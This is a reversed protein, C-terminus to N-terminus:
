KTEEVVEDGSAEGDEMVIGVNGSADVREIWVQFGHKEAAAAILAFSDDDLLSGDAIRLVRLKPNSAMALAMSVQIQEANSAQGFPLGNYLVEDDGIGLGEIPMQARALADELDQTRGKVIADLREWEANAESVVDETLRYNSAAAIKTNTANAATLEAALQATDIEDPIEMMNSDTLKAEATAINSEMEQELQAIRAELRRIEAEHEKNRELLAVSEERLRAQAAKTAAVVSNHNSAGELKKTITEVDIPKAPLGEEPPTMAALRGKVQDFVRGAERREDYAAKIEAQVADVDVDFTVLGRLTKLQEKDDMRTFALPDFSIKGMLANLLTQPNPFQERRKGEVVLKTMYTNGKASREPDVHTFHRTVIFDGLDIQVKGVRQGKRIPFTPVTSTGTLGWSIADLLSTKGSGNKGAVVVVNGKPKLHALRIRKINEIRMEIIQLGEPKAEVPQVSKDSKKTAM